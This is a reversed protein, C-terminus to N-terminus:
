IEKLHPENDLAKEELYNPVLLIARDRLDEAGPYNDNLELIKNVEGVQLMEDTISFDRGVLQPYESELIYFPESRGFHYLLTQGILEKLFNKRCEQRAIRYITEHKLKM